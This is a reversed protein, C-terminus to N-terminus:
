DVLEFRCMQTCDPHKELDSPSLLGMFEDYDRVWIKFPAYLSQYVVQKKNNQDFAFCIINYLYINSAPDVSYRKFHSIVDGPVLRASDRM